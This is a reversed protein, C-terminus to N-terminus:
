FRGFGIVAVPDQGRRLIDGIIEHVNGFIPIVRYFRIGIIYRVSEVPCDSPFKIRKKREVIKPMIICRNQDGFTHRLTVGHIQKAVACRVHDPIDVAVNHCILFVFDAAIDVGDKGVAKGACLFACLCM